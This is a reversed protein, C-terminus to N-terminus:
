QSATNPTHHETLFLELSRFLPAGLLSVSSGFVVGRRLSGGFYYKGLQVAQIMLQTAIALSDADNWTSDKM